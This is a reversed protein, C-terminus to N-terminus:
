KVELTKNLREVLWKGHEDLEDAIRCLQLDAYFESDCVRRLTRGAENLLGAQEQYDCIAFVKGLISDKM